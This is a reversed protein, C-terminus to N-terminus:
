VGSLSFWRWVDMLLTALRTANGTYSYDIGMNGTLRCVCRLHRHAGAGAVLGSCEQSHVLVSVIVLVASSKWGTAAHVPRAFYGLAARRGRGLVALQRVPVRWCGEDRHHRCVVGAWSDRKDLSIIDQVSYNVVGCYRLIASFAVSYCRCFWFGRKQNTLAHHGDCLRRMRAFALTGLVKLWIPAGITLRDTDSSLRAKSPTFARRCEDADRAHAKCTCWKNRGKEPATVSVYEPRVDIKIDGM